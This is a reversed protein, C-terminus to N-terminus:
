TDLASVKGARNKYWKARLGVFWGMLWYPVREKLNKHLGAKLALKGKLTLAVFYRPVAMKVFGNNSKYQILSSETKKGYIYKEYLLYRIGRSCCQKVAEALLANNPRKDYFKMKSIIQMIAASSEDWVIKCYGIMENQYYAALFTSRDSYTGNEARVSSFNKGYHWYRRGQRIPSENYISMIGRVYADDFRSVKVVVGRKGSAKINRRASSAIQKQFWDDYSILQIVAYNDWEFPFDFRPETDPIRQSFTFIDPKKSINRVEDLVRLPDPLNRRELWYEDFIEAIKVFKGHVIIVSEDIRCAFEKIKKGKVSIEFNKVVM